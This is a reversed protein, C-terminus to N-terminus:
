RLIIKYIGVRPKQASPFGTEFSIVDNNVLEAMLEAMERNMEVALLSDLEMAAISQSTLNRPIRDYNEIKGSSYAIAHNNTLLPLPRFEEQALWEISDAVYTKKAGFSYYSGVACYLLLFGLAGHILTTNKTQAYRLIEKILLVIFILSVLALVMTYRSPLFRTLFVFLTVIVLNMAFYGALVFFASRELRPSLKMKWAAILVLLPPGIGSIVNAVLLSFLGAAFFLWLYDKSYNAAFEGFVAVALSASQDSSINLMGDLFPEYTSAFEVIQNVPNVGVLVLFVAVGLLTLLNGLALRLFAFKLSKESLLFTLAIPLGILYALAEPRFGAALILAISFFLSNTLRHTKAYLILQWLSLCCFSWFGMDRIVMGRYDNMEPFILICITAIILTKRDADLTKIISVFSFTLLAFLLGNLLFASSFLSVGLQSISAILISFLPWSYHALAAQLGQDLYIEATRIYVYSDDNLSPPSIRLLGSSILSAATAFYRIDFNRWDLKNMARSRIM